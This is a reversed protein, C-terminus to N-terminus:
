YSEVDNVLTATVVHGGAGSGQCNFAAQIGAPGDIPRKTKPLFVRPVEFILSFDGSAWGFSLDIPDGSTAADLLEMNAFKVTLAMTMTCNGPDADEIRGDPQITDVPDLNNSFTLNASVVNGLAVGGKKVQGAAQAFKVVPLTTPSAAATAGAPDREGIATMGMTAKLLGTRQMQIALTGGKVGYHTFYKPVTLDPHGIEISMSPLTAAGSTFLHTRFDEISGHDASVPNGFFLKLWRGFNRADVNVVVDGVNTAEGQIPDQPERGLGLTDDDILQREEGLTTSSIPTLFFGAVPTVGVGGTEFATLIRANAGRARGAM